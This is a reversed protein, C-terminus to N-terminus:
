QKFRAELSYSPKGGLPAEFRGKGTIGELDGEGSGPLVSWTGAAKKGDFKGNSEIVVSGTHGPATSEIRQFGVFRAKGDNAYSMLWEVAGTGELDGTFKQTVSAKTLKRDGELKQYTEEDWATVEFEGELKAM